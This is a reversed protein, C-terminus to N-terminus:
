LNVELKLLTRNLIKTRHSNKHTRFGENKHFISIEYEPYFGKLHKIEDLKTIKSDDLIMRCPNDTM